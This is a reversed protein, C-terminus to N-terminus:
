PNFKIWDEDFVAHNIVTRGHSTYVVHITGDRAQFAFPYAYDFNGIALNRKSQWTKESDVSLAVSLPNRDNMSDNYLLM